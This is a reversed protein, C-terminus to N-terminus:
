PTSPVFRLLQGRIQHASVFAAGTQSFETPFHATTISEDALLEEFGTHFQARTSSRSPSGVSWPECDSLRPRHGGGVDGAVLHVTEVLDLGLEPFPRADRGGLPRM